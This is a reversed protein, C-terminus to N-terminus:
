SVRMPMLVFSASAYGVTSFLTPAGPDALNVLTIDGNQALVDLLYVANFGIDLYGSFEVHASDLTESVTGVDPNNVSLVLKDDSLSLKIARGRESSMKFVRTVAAIFAKTDIVLRKDNGSPIVRGYDPFTGDILKSLLVAGGIAFQIRGQSTGKTGAFLKVECDGKDKALLKQLETVAACPIIVGPIVEAGKPAGMEVKAMRHGDTAVFRLTADHESYHMYVGNLYYRTEETSVAFATKNLADLLAASSLSFVNRAAGPQMKPYDKVPLSELSLKMQGCRITAATADKEVSLNIQSGKPLSKVLDALSHGPLTVAGNAHADCAISVRSEKDLDTSWINLRGRAASLMVNSLVPVYNRKAVGRKVIALAASLEDRNVNIHM